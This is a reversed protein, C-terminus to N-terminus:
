AGRKSDSKVEWGRWPDSGVALACVDGVAQGGGPPARRSGRPRQVSASTGALLHANLVKECTEPRQAAPACACECKGWSNATPPSCQETELPLFTSPELFRATGM